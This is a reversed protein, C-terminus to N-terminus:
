STTIAIHRKSTWGSYADSAKVCHAYLAYIRMTYTSNETNVLPATVIIKAPSGKWATKRQKWDKGVHLDIMGTEKRHPERFARALSLERILQEGHKMALAEEEFHIAAIFILLILGIFQSLPFYPLFYLFWFLWHAASFLDRGLTPLM